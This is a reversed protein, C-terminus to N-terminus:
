ANSRNLLLRAYFGVSTRERSLLLPAPLLLVVILRLHDPASSVVIVISSVLLWVMPPRYDPSGVSLSVYFHLLTYSTVAVIEAWGYGIYGIRPVLSAASAAFLVLHVAHFYMVQVNRKLLYLVSSHLTFISNVLYSFAIFPFVHFAPDWRSGFIPPLVFPAIGAFLALPFGVALAQLRMGETISRRLRGTDGDLKALAAMAVRWTAQKIFALVEVLRIALAVFGVGQAGAFRGVILPNVLSRLQWIWMAGSYSLGYGLMERILAREWCLRLRLPASVYVLILMLFQTALMGLIPAWCGMRHFALPVAILYGGVQGTVEILAVRHFRLDRDLRVIGPLALLSFPIFFSMVALPLALEPIGVLHSIGHRFLTLTGVFLASTAVFFTFAQNYEAAMPETAKRLLYVDLGWTAANAIFAAIGYAAAFLGYQSPGIIRTVLLVNVVSLGMGLGQRMAFAAGGRVVKQRLDSAPKQPPDHLKLKPM